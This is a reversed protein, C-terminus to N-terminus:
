KMMKKLLVRFNKNMWVRLGIFLVAAPRIHGKLHIEGELAKEGFVPELSLSKAYLAYFPSVAALVQGTYYPDEFGFRIRGKFKRPFFHKFLKGTQRWLLSITKKNEENELFEGASQLKKLVRQGAAQFDRFVRKFFPVINIIKHYLKKLARWLFSPKTLSGDEGSFEPAAESFESDPAPALLEMAQVPEGKDELSIGEPLPDYQASWEKVEEPWLKRNILRFFLVRVILWVENEYTLRVSVLHFLWSVRAKIVPTEDFAGYARYRLPTLLIIFLLLFVLGLLALLLIGLVKLILLIVHLM